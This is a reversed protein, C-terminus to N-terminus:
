IARFEIRRNKANGQEEDNPVIPSNEGEGSVRYGSTDIDLTDLYKKVAMAREESLAQNTAEDGLSDTHGIIEYPGKALCPLLAQIQQIGIDTLEASALEFEIISAKLLSVCDIEVVEVVPEEKVVELQNDVAVDDGAIRAFEGGIFVRAVKSTVAGAISWRDPTLTASLEQVGGLESVIESVGAIDMAKVNSDVSLKSVVNEDGFAKRAATFLTLRTEEDAVSGDLTVVSGSRTLALEYPTKVAPEIIEPVSETVPPEPEPVLEPEPMVESEEDVTEKDAVQNQCCQAQWPGMDARWMFFLIIALLIVIVIAWFDFARWTAQSRLYYRKM